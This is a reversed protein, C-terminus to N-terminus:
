PVLHRGCCSKRFQPGSPCFPSGAFAGAGPHYTGGPPSFPFAVFRLQNRQLRDYSGGDVMVHINHGDHLVPSCSEGYHFDIAVLEVPKRRRLDIPSQANGCGCLRFEESLSGWYEPGTEGEYSWHM